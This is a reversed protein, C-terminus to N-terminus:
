QAYIPKKRISYILLIIALYYFILWFFSVTKTLVFNSWPLLALQHSIFMIWDLLAQTIHGILQALPVSVFAVLAQIFGFIMIPPLFPLVLINALPAVLSLNGFYYVLLPLVMVQASLTMMLSSKIEFSEPLKIKTLFKDIYEGLFIIGAVALFSLQFGVDGLLLKPNILLLITAALLLANISKNLRGLTLAWLAVFGMVGARLSSARFGILFLFLILSLIAFYFAWRRKLGIFIFLNLLLGAVISIHLGSIAIIHSLGTARLDNLVHSPIGRRLGLIIASLIENEPQPLSIDLKNKVRSKLALISQYFNQWPNLKHQNLLIVSRATYCVTYINKVALYKAYDFDNVMGPQRLQCSLKLWAGYNYIAQNPLTVLVKGSLSQHKFVINGLVLKRSNDRIDPEAVVQGTFKIYQNHYYAINHNNIHPLSIALRWVGLMFFCAGWIILRQRKSLPLLISLVFLFLLILFFYFENFYIFRFLLSAIFIGVVLLLIYIKFFKHKQLM